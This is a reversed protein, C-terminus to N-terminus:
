IIYKRGREGLEPKSIFFAHSSNALDDDQPDRCGTVFSLAVAGRGYDYLRSANTAIM